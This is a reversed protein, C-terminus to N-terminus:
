TSNHLFTVKLQPMKLALQMLDMTAKTTICGSEKLSQDFKVNAAAHIIISVQELLVM